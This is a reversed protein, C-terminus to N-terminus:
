NHVVSVNIESVTSPLFLGVVAMEVGFTGKGKTHAMQVEKFKTMRYFLSINAGFLLLLRMCVLEIGAVKVSGGKPTEVYGIWKIAGYLPPDAKVEVASGIDLNSGVFEEQQSTGAIQQENAIHPYVEKIKLARPPGPVVNAYQMGTAGTPLENRGNNKVGQGHMGTTGPQLENRGTTMVDQSHMGTTRTQVETRGANKVDQPTSSRKLLADQQHEKDKRGTEKEVTISQWSQPDRHQHNNAGAPQPPEKQKHQAAQSMVELQLRMIETTDLGGLLHRPATISQWSQPDKHQHNNAGAPQPPEKQKHQAAQSMVELQQQMVETTDLGGLLHRPAGEIDKDEKSAGSPKRPGSQEQQQHSQEKTPGSQEQQQHSQEKTAGKQPTSPLSDTYEPLPMVSEVPLYVKQGGHKAQFRAHKQADMGELGVIM